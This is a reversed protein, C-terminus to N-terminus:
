VTEVEVTFLYKTTQWLNVFSLTNHTTLYRCDMFVPRSLLNSCISSCTLSVLLKNFYISSRPSCSLQLDQNSEGPLQFPLTEAGQECAGSRALAQVDYWRVLVLVDAVDRRACDSRLWGYAESWNSFCMCIHPVALLTIEAKIWRTSSLPAATGRKRCWVILSLWCGGAKSSERNDTMKHIIFNHRLLLRYFVSVVELCFINTTSDRRSMPFWWSHLPAAITSSFCERHLYFCDAMHTIIKSLCNILRKQTFWSIEFNWM